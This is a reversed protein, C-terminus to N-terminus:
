VSANTLFHIFNKSVLTVDAVPNARLFTLFQKRQRRMEGVSITQKITYTDQCGPLTIVDGVSGSRQAALIASGISQLLKDAKFVFDPSMLPANQTSMNAKMKKECFIAACIDEAPLAGESPGHVFFFPSDWRVMPNPEEFRFILEKIIKDSYQEKEEKKKNCEHIEDESAEVHLVCFTTRVYKALCHLEYRYGKIYNLSDVIVITDKTLEREIAAKLAGRVSIEKRSDAYVVNRDISKDDVIVVKHGSYKEGLYDRLERSRHSKGVSPKGCVIVLPM